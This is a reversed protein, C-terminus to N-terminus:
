EAAKDEETEMEPNASAIKERSWRTRNERILAGTPTKREESSKGSERTLQRRCNQCNKGDQNDM